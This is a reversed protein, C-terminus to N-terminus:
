NTPRVTVNASYTPMAFAPVKAKGLAAKICAEAPKGVANGTVVVSAVNGNSGFTIAARSVPEDPKLCARAAPLAAGVAGTVAGQSPKQPVSGAAIAPDNPAPAPATDQSAPTPAPTPAASQKIADALAGTPGPAPPLDKAVLKPDIKDSPEAKAMARPGAAKKPTAPTAATAVKGGGGVAGKTADDTKANDDVGGSSPAAPVAALATATAPDTTTTAAPQPAPAPTAEPATPVVIAVTHAARKAQQSKVVFFAGAAMAAITAIGGVLLLASSSKKEQPKKATALVASAVAGSMAQASVPAQSNRMSGPPQSNRDDDEFLPQSALPTSQARSAAMPDSAAAAKLDVVGSDSSTAEAARLVGSPPSSAPQSRVSPPPPTNAMRALDQFSRRERTTSTSSAMKGEAQPARSSPAPGVSAATKHGEEPTSPLPAELFNEVGTHAKTASQAVNADIVLARAEWEESSIAPEPWQGLAELLARDKADKRTESV